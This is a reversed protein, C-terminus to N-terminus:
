SVLGCTTKTPLVEMRDLTSKAWVEWTYNVTRSPQGNGSHLFNFCILNRADKAFCEVFVFGHNFHIFRVKMGKDTDGEGETVVFRPVLFSSKGDPNNRIEFVDGSRDDFTLLRNNFIQLESFEAGRGAENHGTVVERAEETKISYQNTEPDRTIIGPLLYSRYKHKDGDEFHSLQDLDTVAAFRFVNEKVVSGETSFYGPKVAGSFSIEGHRMHSGAIGTDHIFDSSIILCFSLFAITAVVARSNQRLYWQFKAIAGLHDRPYAKSHGRGSRSDGLPLTVGTSPPSTPM